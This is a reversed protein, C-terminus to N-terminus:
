DQGEQDDAGASVEGEVGGLEGGDSGAYDGDDSGAYDGDDSGAYEDREAGVAEAEAEIEDRGTARAALSRLAVESVLLSA